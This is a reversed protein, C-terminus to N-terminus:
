SASVQASFPQASYITSVEATVQAAREPELQLQGLEADTVDPTDVCQERLLERVVNANPNKILIQGLWDTGKTQDLWNEGLLMKLRCRIGQPVAEAGAVVAFDGNQIIMEGNEDLAFDRVPTPSLAADAPTNITVAVAM